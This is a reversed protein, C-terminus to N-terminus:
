PHYSAGPGFTPLPCGSSARAASAVGVPAMLAVVLGAAATRVVHKM